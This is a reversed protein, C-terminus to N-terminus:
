DPHLPTIKGVGEGQQNERWVKSVTFTTASANQLMWYCKILSMRGLNAIGSKCWDSSILCFESSPIESKRIEPWYKIFSFQWLELLLWWISMFSPGTVLNSLHFVFVDFIIVAHRYVIVDNEKQQNIASKCGDPLRIRSM